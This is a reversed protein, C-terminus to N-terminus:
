EFRQRHFHTGNCKPCPPIHGPKHFQLKEGCKDCVLTGLGTLEGTHYGANEAQRKLQYQATTTQDAAESFREWFEHKMLAVDFGLWDKLGKGTKNVYEAADILDRRVYEELKDIEDDSFKNLAVIDNRVADIMHHVAAGSQHAKRLASELLLEYAEGMAEIPDRPPLLDKM